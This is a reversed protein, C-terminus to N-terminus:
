NIKLTVRFLCSALSIISVDVIRFTKFTLPVFLDGIASYGCPRCLLRNRCIIFANANPYIRLGSTTLVGYGFCLSKSSLDTGACGPVTDGGSRDPCILDGACDEPGDCDGQCKECPSTPSCGPYSLVPLTGTDAGIGPSTAPAPTVSTAVPSPTTTDDRGDSDIAEPRVCYDSYSNSEEGGSCGILHFFEFLHTEACRRRPQSYSM